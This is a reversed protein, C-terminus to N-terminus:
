SLINNHDHGFHDIQGHGNPFDSPEVTMTRTPGGERILSLVVPNISIYWVATCLEISLVAHGLYKIEM